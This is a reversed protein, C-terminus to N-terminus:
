VPADTERERQRESLLEEKPRGERRPDPDRKVCISLPEAEAVEAAVTEREDTV